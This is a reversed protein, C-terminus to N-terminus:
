EPERGSGSRAQHAAAAEATKTWRDHETSVKTGTGAHEWRCTVGAAARELQEWLDLDAEPLAGNTMIEILRASDSYIVLPEARDRIANLAEIVARLKIRDPTTQNEGGSAISLIGDSAQRVYAWGGPGRDEFCAGHTWIQVENELPSELARSESRKNPAV